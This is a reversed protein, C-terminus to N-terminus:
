ESFIEASIVIIIVHYASRDVNKGQSPLVAPDQIVLGQIRHSVALAFPRCLRPDNPKAVPFDDSFSEVEPEPRVDTM